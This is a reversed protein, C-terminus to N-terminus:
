QYLCAAAFPSTREFSARIRRCALYRCENVSVFMTLGWWKRVCHHRHEKVITTLMFSGDLFVSNWYINFSM